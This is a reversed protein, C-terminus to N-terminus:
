VSPNHRSDALVTTCQLRLGAPGDPYRNADTGDSRLRVPQKGSELQTVHHQLVGLLTVCQAQQTHNRAYRRSREQLEVELLEVDFARLEFDTEVYRPLQMDGSEVHRGVGAALRAGGVPKEALAFQDDLAPRHAPGVLTAM